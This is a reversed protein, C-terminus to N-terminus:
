VTVPAYIYYYIFDDKLIFMSEDLFWNGYDNKMNRFNEKTAKLNVLVPMTYGGFYLVPESLPHCVFGIKNSYRIFSPEVVMYTHSIDSNLISHLLTRLLIFSIASRRKKNTVIYRSTEVYNSNLKHENNIFGPHHVIPLKIKDTYYIFRAYGQIEWKDNSISIHKSVKDYIDIEKEDTCEEPKIWKKDQCYVHYRANFCSPNVHSYNVREIFLNEYSEM